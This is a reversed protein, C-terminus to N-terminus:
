RLTFSNEKMLDISTRLLLMYPVLSDGQLVGTFINFFDTDGDPLRVLAKANKYLVMIAILTEKPLNYAQLIQKIKGWHTNDFAKFIDVLLLTTELNKARVGEIIQRITPIQSTTSGNM